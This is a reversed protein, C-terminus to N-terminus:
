IENKFGPERSLEFILLGSRSNKDTEARQFFTLRTAARNFPPKDIFVGSGLPTRTRVSHTPLDVNPTPRNAPDCVDETILARRWTSAELNRLVQEIQANTLHQLVQRILILDAPPFTAATMDAVGFTVHQLASDQAYRRKNIDIIFPSVDLATYRDFGPALRSGVLFDGCGGDVVTRLKHKAAYDQVFAVYRDAFVGESGPGSNADGGRGWLGKKYVEDFAEQIPLQTVIRRERSRKLNGIGHKLGAPMLDNLLSKLSM